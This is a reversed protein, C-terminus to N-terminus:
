LSEQFSQLSNEFASIELDSFDALLSKVETAEQTSGFIAANTLVISLLEGLVHHVLELLFLSENVFKLGLIDGGTDLDGLGLGLDLV